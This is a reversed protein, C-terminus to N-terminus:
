YLSPCPSLGPEESGQHILLKIQERFYNTFTYIAKGDGWTECATAVTEANYVLVDQISQEFM